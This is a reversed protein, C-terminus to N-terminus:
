LVETLFWEMGYLYFIWYIRVSQLVAAFIGMM